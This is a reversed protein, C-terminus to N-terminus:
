FAFFQNALMLILTAKGPLKKAKFSANTISSGRMVHKKTNRISDDRELKFNGRHHSNLLANTM